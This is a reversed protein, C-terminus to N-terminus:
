DIIEDSLTDRTSMDSGNKLAFPLVSPVRLSSNFEITELPMVIALCAVISYTGGRERGGFGGVFNAGFIVRSACFESGLVVEIGFHAVQNFDPGLGEVCVVLVHETSGVKRFSLEVIGDDFIFYQLRSQLFIFEVRLVRNLSCKIPEQNRLSPRQTVQVYMREDHSSEEGETERDLFKITNVCILSTPEGQPVM